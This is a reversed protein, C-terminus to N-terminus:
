ESSLTEKTIGCAMMADGFYPNRIQSDYSLWDGGQDDNAMPCHQVFVEPKGPNGFELVWYIMVQSLPSFASRWEEVGDKQVILDLHSKFNKVHDNWTDNYGEMDNRPSIQNSVSQLQSLSAFIKEHDGEILEDKLAIYAELIQNLDKRAGATVVDPDVQEINDWSDEEEGTADEGILRNMM